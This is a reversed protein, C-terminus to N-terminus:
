PWYNKYSCVYTLPFIVKHSKTQNLTICHVPAPNLCIIMLVLPIDRQFTARKEPPVFVPQATQRTEVGRLTKRRSQFLLPVFRDLHLLSDSRSTRGGLLAHKTKIKKKWSTILAWIQVTRYSFCYGLRGALSQLPSTGSRMNVPLQSGKGGRYRLAAGM